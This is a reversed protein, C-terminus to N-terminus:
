GIRLVQGPFILNPDGIGNLQALRSVTTEYKNAIQTLNDGKQVTYTQQAGSGPVRLVQGEYILNPNSIGNAAALAQWTTNYKPAIASLTDGKQVTYTSDAVPPAPQVPAPDVPGPTATVQSGYKRLAEEDGSFLDMDLPSVGGISGKSTYQWIAWFKWPAADPETGPNGTNSGYNALWLGYDADKLPSWDFRGKLDSNLYVMGKVGTLEKATDLFEKSWAVDSEVIKRGYVVEDEMDVSISDGVELTKVIGVFDRAQQAGTSRGPYAFFYAQRIVGVRRAENWNRHFQADLGGGGYGARIIAFKVGDAKLKDWDLLGNFQSVDIGKLQAM